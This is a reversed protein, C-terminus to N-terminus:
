SVYSQMALPTRKLTKNLTELSMARFQWLLKLTKNLTEFICLESNALFM